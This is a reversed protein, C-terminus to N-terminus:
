RLEKRGGVRPSIAKADTTPRSVTDFIVWDDDRIAWNKNGKKTIIIRTRVTPQQATRHRYLLVSYQAISTADIMMKYVPSVCPVGQDKM